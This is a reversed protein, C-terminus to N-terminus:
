QPAPYALFCEVAALPAGRVSARRTKVAPFPLSDARRFYACAFEAPIARIVQTTATHPTHLLLIRVCVYARYICSYYSSVYTPSTYVPTTTHPCMRLRPICLLLLIRVCVYARYICSYYYSSVYTPLTYVPTTTHPCMRLRPIYLLLLILVCVYALYVCSYYYSSVYTPSTYVPTTTLPCLRLLLLILVCVYALYICSYYYSSVFMPAFQPSRESTIHAAYRPPLLGVPKTLPM